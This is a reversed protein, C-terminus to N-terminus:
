CTPAGIALTESCYRAITQIIADASKSWVFPKPDANHTDILGVLPGAVLLVSFFNRSHRTRAEVIIPLDIASANQPLDSRTCTSYRQAANHTVPERSPRPSCNPCVSSTM